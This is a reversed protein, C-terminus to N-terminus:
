QRLNYVIGAANTGKLQSHSERGPSKRWSRRLGDMQDGSTPPSKTATVTWNEGDSSKQVEVSFGRKRLREGVEEANRKKPFYLYHRMGETRPSTERSKSKKEAAEVIDKLGLETAREPTWGRALEKVMAPHPWIEFVSLKEQEATLHELLPTRQLEDLTLRSAASIIRWRITRGFDDFAAAHRMVPYAKAWPPVPQNSVIEAQGTRPAYDMLYFVFYLEKQRALQALDSPRNSFLGPLVRVLEGNTGGEHTYQLYALGVPTKIEIVDGINAKKRAM